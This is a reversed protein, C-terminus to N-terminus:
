HYYNEIIIKSSHPFLSIRCARSLQHEMDSVLHFVEMRVLEIENCMVFEFFCFKIVAAFSYLDNCSFCVKLDVKWLDFFVCTMLDIVIKSWRTFTTPEETTLIMASVLPWWPWVSWTQTTANWIVQRCVCVCVCFDPQSAAVCVLVVAFCLLFHHFILPSLPPAAPDTQSFNIPTDSWWCLSCQRALTSATDGTTTPSGGTGKVSLTCSGWWSRCVCVVNSDDHTIDPAVYDALHVIDSM